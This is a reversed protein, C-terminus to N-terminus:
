PGRPLAIHRPRAYTCFRQPIKTVKVSTTRSPLLSVHYMVDSFGYLPYMAMNPLYKMKHSVTSGRVSDLGLRLGLGLGLGSSLVLGLGLQPNM